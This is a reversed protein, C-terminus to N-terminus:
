YNQSFIGDFYIRLYIWYRNNLQQISIDEDFHLIHILLLWAMHGKYLSKDMLFHRETVERTAHSVVFRDTFGMRITRSVDKEDTFGM